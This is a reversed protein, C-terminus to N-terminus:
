KVDNFVELLRNYKVVREGRVPSGTKIFEAEVALALDAISTDEGTEGSRHSVVIKMKSGRAEKIFDLTESLTGIQNPKVIVANILAKQSVKKLTVTNTTVLDDGVLMLKQAFNKYFEAWGTYDKEYFGDELYIIEFKKLLSAYYDGLQLHDLHLNEEKIVYHDKDHFSSAAVDMGLFIDEGFKYEKGISKHILTLAKHVNIDQPAFGGEDGVGTSYGEKILEAKLLQYASVGMEMASDFALKPSPIVMFEQFSLGNNSHKGGNIINFLPTPFKLGHNSLQKGSYLVSLYEYLEMKKSVACAKAVALSVSLISNGGLHSKNPTGDMEIMTRDIERQNIADIDQLADHIATPIIQLAKEVPLYVAENEGKSAGDPVTEVGVSGDDLTAKTSITWDGRSNLVKFCSLSKIKPM